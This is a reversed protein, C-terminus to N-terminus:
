DNKESKNQKDFTSIVESTLDDKEQSYLVTNENKELILTYNRKKAHDAIITRLKNIIPQTLDQQKQQIEAQSRATLEQFKLIREQLEAQKKGRAEDSMVLSQKKFEETMKKISSEEGQLEKKKSNFEKELQSKAKKGIEVTQLAKQMDVTGIRVEEASARMPSAIGASLALLAGFSYTTMKRKMSNEKRALIM